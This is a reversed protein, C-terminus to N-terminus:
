SSKAISIIEITEKPVDHHGAFDGTKVKRIKDVVDMGDIVEGFVCYGCENPADGRYDLFNNDVVNIFFQATASHPHLTRAMALTGRSNKLGNNSENKIAPKTQKQQFDKTFGGGQIMFGDIIRHFITGNYQGESVYDLFNKVTAPAKTSFLQIKIDGHSTKLIVIENQSKSEMQVFEETNAFGLGTCCIFTLVSLFLQKRM